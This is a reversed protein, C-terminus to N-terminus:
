MIVWAQMGVQPHTVLPKILQKPEGSGTTIGMKQVQQVTPCQVFSCLELTDVGEGM